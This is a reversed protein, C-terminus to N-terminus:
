LPRVADMAANGRPRNSAEVHSRDDLL